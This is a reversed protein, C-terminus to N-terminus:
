GEFDFEGIKVGLTFARWEAPTYHLPPTDPRKSDRVLVETDTFEVEVCDGFNCFSSRRWM